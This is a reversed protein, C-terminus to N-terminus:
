RPTAPPGADALDALTPPLEFVAPPFREGTVSHRVARKLALDFFLPNADYLAALARRDGPDLHGADVLRGLQFLVNVAPLPYDSGDVLREHLDDRAILRDLAGPFRNVQTVASIEGFVRGDYRADDMLRLFLDLNPRRALAPDDLDIGDGLSGCHAVIVRVGAELAARLRLPNGLEQDEEAHVAKETGAHSLLVLGLDRMRDYFPGCREDLPDIGMANPLWKVLRAGRAAGRDLETLADQRYPHVSIAPVFRDPHLAALECVYGNPVYLETREPRVSGDPAYHRDFALLAGRRPLPSARALEVLRDVYQRDASELDRIGAASAYVKFRVWDFPYLPSRMRPNVSCGTGGTGLGVVHVHVDFVREPDLGDLTREILARVEPAPSDLDSPAGDYAGGVLHVWGPVTLVVAVVLVLLVVLARALLKRLTRM